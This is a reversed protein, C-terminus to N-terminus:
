IKSELLDMFAYDSCRVKEVLTKTSPCRMRGKSNPLIKPTDDNDFFLNKRTAKEMLESPPLGKVEMICLLQEAENEGPFLPYGM